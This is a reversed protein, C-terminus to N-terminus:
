SRVITEKTNIDEITHHCITKNSSERSNIEPIIDEDYIDICYLRNEMEIIKKLGHLSEFLM